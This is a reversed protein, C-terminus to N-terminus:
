AKPKSAKRSGSLRSPMQKAKKRKTPKPKTVRSASSAPKAKAKAKAKAPIKAGDTAGTKSKTAVEPSVAKRTSGPRGIPALLPGPVPAVPAVPKVEVLVVATALDPKAVPAPAVTKAPKVPRAAFEDRWADAFPAFVKAFLGGLSLLMRKM